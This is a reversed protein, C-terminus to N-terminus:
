VNKKVTAVSTKSAPSVFISEKFPDTRRMMSIVSVGVGEVIRMGGAREAMVEKM